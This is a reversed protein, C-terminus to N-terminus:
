HIRYSLGVSVVPYYKLDTLDNQLKNQEATVDTPSVPGCNSYVGNTDNQCGNGSFNYLVTPAKFFQVGIESEFTLRGKKPLMNGTGITVRGATKGGFAVAATGTIPNGPQSYYTDSGLTFSQGAPVTINGSFGTNNYVTAGGSIRFRGHFPFWDVMADANQFKLSADINLNDTTINTSYSFFSAGGRLNLRSQVLPTAVDFGIGALGFRVGVGLGSFPGGSHESTSPASPSSAVAADQAPAAAYPESADLSSSSTAAPLNIDAYVAPAPKAGQASSIAPSVALAALIGFVPLSGLLKLPCKGKM